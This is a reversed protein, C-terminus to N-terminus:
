CLLCYFWSVRPVCSIGACPGHAMLLLAAMVRSVVTPVRSLVTDSDQGSFVHSGPGGSWMSTPRTFCVPLLSILQSCLFALLVCARFHFFRFPLMLSLYFWAGLSCCAPGRAGHCLCRSPRPLAAQVWQCSQCGPAPPQAGTGRVSNLCHSLVARRPRSGVKMRESNNLLVNRLEKSVMYLQRKKGETTRTLLNTKPFSPDLAYFKRHFPCLQNRPNLEFTIGATHDRGGGHDLNECECPKPVPAGGQVGVM